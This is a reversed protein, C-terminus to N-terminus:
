EAKIYKAIIGDVTGDAQLEKLAANFSELLETNEKAFAAAYNETIYETELIVLGENAAVFNKAPENDIVVCDVQDNQLAQVALSGNAYQKVNEQGYDDTCYIDGTTGAQVGIVKGALDDVTKIDSGEKVIVVQVGTAYTESFNVSEKREDTVTLGALVVDIAGGSVASILSDFEMDKVELTMGLKEAVATAIEVDIGAYAGDDGVFEYPPFAANTGMVLAKGEAAKTEDVDGPNEVVEAATTEETNAKKGCAAFVTLVLVAAVLLAIVKKM